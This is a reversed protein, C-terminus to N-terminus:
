QVTETPKDADSGTDRQCGGLPYSCTLLFIRWKRHYCEVSFVNSLGATKNKYWVVDSSFSGCGTFLFCCKLFLIAPWKFINGIVLGHVTIFFSFKPHWIAFAIFCVVASFSYPVYAGRGKLHSRSRAVDRWCAPEVRSPALVLLALVLLDSLIFLLKGKLLLICAFLSHTYSM